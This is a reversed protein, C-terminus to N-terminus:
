RSRQVRQPQAGLSATTAAPRGLRSTASVECFASSSKRETHSTNAALGVNLCLLDSIVVASSRVLAPTLTPLVVSLLVRLEAAGDVRADEM